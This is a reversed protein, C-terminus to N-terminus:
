PEPKTPPRISGPGGVIQPKVMKKMVVPEAIEKKVVPKKDCVM